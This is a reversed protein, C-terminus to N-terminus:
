TDVMSPLRCLFDLIHTRITCHITNILNIAFFHNFINLLNFLVDASMYSRIYLVQYYRLNRRYVRLIKDDASLYGTVHGNCHNISYVDRGARM